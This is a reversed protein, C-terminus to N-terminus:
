RPRGVPPRQTYRGPRGPVYFKTVDGQRAFRYVRQPRKGDLGKAADGPYRWLELPPEGYLDSPEFEIKEPEGYLVYITGRDSARGARGAEAFRQDAEAARREAAERVPNSPRQPDPDRVGWFREVFALAAEDDVLATFERM